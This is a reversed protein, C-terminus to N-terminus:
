RGKIKWIHKNITNFVELMHDFTAEVAFLQIRKEKREGRERSIENTM